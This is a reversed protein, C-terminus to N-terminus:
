FRFIRGPNRDIKYKRPLTKDVQSEDVNHTDITFKSSFDDDKIPLTSRGWVFILFLKKQEENFLENLVKWFREIVPSDQKYDQGYNTNRKLLEVDIEGEGCVAKELESGTFLSLYYCPVVSSLGQRILEIQRHFENLRYHRYTECYQKFNKATIPIDMGGPILEYTQGASSVVDFRLESMFSSFLYDMNSATDISRAQETNKEMEDVMTFSQLDISQIDDVTIPENLLQKWFAPAFKLNLYHKKRIAFGMLQGIFRYQKQLKSPISKNPPFVNPIWCDRNLGTNTRGNPCLIFLPLRTSCIDSCIRTISDRYPGGADTSHMGIYRAEWLQDNPRRFITSGDTHLQRYAQHFITNETNENGDVMNFQVERSNYEYEAETKEISQSLLQFKTTTLLYIKVVRIRDSLISQGLSLSLDVMSLVQEVLKNLQYIFKARILVCDAPINSLYLYKEYFKTNPTSEMPLKRIFDSFSNNQSLSKNMVSILQQDSNIDFFNNCKDFDDRNLQLVNGLLDKSQTFFVEPQKTRNMIANIVDVTTFLDRINQPLEGIRSSQVSFILDMLAIRLNKTLRNEM